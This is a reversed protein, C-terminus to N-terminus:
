CNLSYGHEEILFKEKELIINYTEEDYYKETKEHQSANIRKESRIESLQRHSLQHGTQIIAEILEEILNEQHIFYDVICQDKWIKQLHTLSNTQKNFLLKKNDRSFLNLYRHTYFGVSNSLSSAAYNEGLCIKNKYLEKIWTRFRKPDMSDQYCYKFIKTSRIVEDLMEELLFPFQSYNREEYNNWKLRAHYKSTTRNYLGGRGSAGYAWLSVYFSFPNRVSGIVLRNELPLPFRDHKRGSQVDLHKSLLRSITTGGTKQLHLFVIRDTYVM